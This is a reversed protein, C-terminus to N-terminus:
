RLADAPPVVRVGPVRALLDRLIPAHAAGIIV